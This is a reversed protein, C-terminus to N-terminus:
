QVGYKALSVLLTLNHDYSSNRNDALQFNLALAMNTSGLLVFAEMVIHTHALFVWIVFLPPLSTSRRTILLHRERYTLLRLQRPHLSSSARHLEFMCHRLLISNKFYPQHCSHYVAFSFFFFVSVFFFVCVCKWSTLLFLAADNKLIIVATQCFFLYTSRWRSLLAASSAVCTLDDCRLSCHRM